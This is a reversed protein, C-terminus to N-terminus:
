DVDLLQWYNEIGGELCRCQTFGQTQLFKKAKQSRPGTKCHLIIEVDKLNEIEDLRFPLDYLSINIAGLNGEEYEWCERVDIIIPNDGDSLRKILEKCDIDNM